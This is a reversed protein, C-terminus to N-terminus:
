SQVRAKQKKPRGGLQGNERSAEQKAKSRVGGRCAPCFEVRVLRCKHLKCFREGVGSMGRAKM